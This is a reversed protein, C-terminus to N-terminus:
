MAQTLGYRYLPRAVEGRYYTSAEGTSRSRADGSWVWKNEAAGNVIPAMLTAGLVVHCWLVGVV